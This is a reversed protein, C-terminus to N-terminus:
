PKEESTHAVARTELWEHLDATRYRIARGLKLFRPGGGKIRWAQMTRTSLNLFKAVQTETLLPAPEVVPNSM